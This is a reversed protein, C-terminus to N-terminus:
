DSGAFSANSAGSLDKQVSSFKGFVGNSAGSLRVNAKNGHMGGKISSAGSLEADLSDVTGSFKLGSAGSLTSKLTGLSSASFTAKSAGSLDCTLNTLEGKVKLDSAGSGGLNLDHKSTLELNVITAGSAEFGNITPTSLTLKLPSDTSVSGDIWVKLTRDKVETKILPLINSDASLKLPALTGEKAEVQFASGVIVKDYEGVSRSEEKPKGDGKISPGSFGHSFGIHIDDCGAIAFPLALFLFRKM